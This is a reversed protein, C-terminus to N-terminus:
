VVVVIAASSEEFLLEFCSSGACLLMLVRCAIVIKFCDVCEFMEYPVYRTESVRGVIAFLGLVCHAMIFRAADFHQVPSPSSVRGM